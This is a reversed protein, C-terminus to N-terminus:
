QAYVREALGKKQRDSANTAGRLWRPPQPLRTEWFIRHAKKTPLALPGECRSYLPVTRDKGVPAMRSSLVKKV